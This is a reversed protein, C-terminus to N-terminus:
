LAGRGKVELYRNVVAATMARPSVDVVAVGAQRMRALAEARASLLEEAAAAEYLRSSTPADPRAAALLADNRLAVVLPLHHAAGRTTHAVLAQSARADIVDTFIVLLARKRHRAALTRFAAAYDPEAMTAQVPVLADRIRQLAVRGPAPPVFARVEDDFVLVGVQDGSAAAVDALVLASSLAYEFRPLPGAFQTMLRGADVAILVAQGQEVTFERTVLAGRRATAKWDVHRPDDGEAYERLGAFSTGAGRRRVARVGADRLRHQVALLRYRRVGAVSPAVTVRDNPAYRVTRAVLGLPGVVRLAVPGLAFVGRARGTLTFPVDLAGRGAVRRRRPGRVVSPPLDSAEASPHHYDADVHDTHHDRPPGGPAEARDFEERTGRVRPRATSEARGLAGDAVPREDPEIAGPEGAEAAGSAPLAGFRREVASPLLDYIEVWVDRPWASRVVYAGEGVDGLGVAAPARREVRVDRAGPTLAADAAVAVLVLATVGAAALAAEGGGSLWVPAALLLVLALRRTPLLALRASRGEGESM